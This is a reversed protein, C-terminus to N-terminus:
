LGQEPQAPLENKIPRRTGYVFIYIQVTKHSLKCM